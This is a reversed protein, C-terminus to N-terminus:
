AGIHCVLAHYVCNSIVRSETSHALRSVATVSAVLAKLLKRVTFSHQNLRGQWVGDVLHNARREVVRLDGAQVLHRGISHTVVLTM